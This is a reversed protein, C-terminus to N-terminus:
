ESNLKFLNPVDEYQEAQYTLFMKMSNWKNHEFCRCVKGSPYIHFIKESNWKLLNSVDVYQEM